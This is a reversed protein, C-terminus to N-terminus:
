QMRYWYIQFHVLLATYAIHQVNTDKNNNIVGQVIIIFSIAQTVNWWAPKAFYLLGAPIMQVKYFTGPLCGPSPLDTTVKAGSTSLSRKWIWELGSVM